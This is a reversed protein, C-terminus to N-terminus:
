RGTPMLEVPTIRLPGFSTAGAAGRPTGQIREAILYGRTARLLRGGRHIRGNWLLFRIDRLSRSPSFRRDLGISVARRPNARLIADVAEAKYRYAIGYDGPAGGDRIITHFFRVDLVTLSILCSALALASLLGNRRALLEFVRALGLFPLPTIV